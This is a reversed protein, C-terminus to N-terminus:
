QSEAQVEYHGPALFPITYQGSFGSVSSATSGTRTETAVVKVNPVAAGTSDTIAGSITARTEQAFVPLTMFMAIVAVYCFKMFILEKSVGAQFPFLNGKVPILHQTEGSQQFLFMKVPPRSILERVRPSIPM